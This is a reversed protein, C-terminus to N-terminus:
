GMEGILGQLRRSVAEPLFAQLRQRQENIIETRLKDDEALLNILEATHTFDKERLLLGSGGLTEAVAGADFAIVPLGFHIAEVLPIGFGEHESMSLYVHAVQYYATLEADSAMGTFAVDRLGLKDVLARLYAEYKKLGGLSGVLLLRADPRIRKLAYFTCILDEIRKNPAFRGVYLVNLGAAYRRLITPDPQQQYRAPDLIIPLVGTPAFGAAELEQRNFDSVGWAGDVLTRLEQLRKRGRATAEQRVRDIGAFFHAPTINHYVLIKRHPVQALWQRVTSPYDTSYHLLLLTEEDAELPYHALQYSQESFHIPTEECYLDGDIGQARLLQRINVMQNTVSSADILSNHFQHVHRIM